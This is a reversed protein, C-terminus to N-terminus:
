RRDGGASRILPDDPGAASLLACCGPPAPSRLGLPAVEDLRGDLLLAALLQLSGPVEGSSFSLSAGALSVRVGALRRFADSGPPSGTSASAARPGGPPPPSRPCAGPRSHAALDPRAAAPATPAAASRRARRCGKNQPSPPARDDSKNRCAARKPCYRRRRRRD